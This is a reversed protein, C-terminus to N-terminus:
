LMNSCLSDNQTQIKAVSTCSCTHSSQIFLVGTLCRVAPFPSPSHRPPPSTPSTELCLHTTVRALRKMRRQTVMVWGHHTKRMRLVRDNFNTLVWKFCNLNLFFNKITFCYKAQNKLPYNHVTIPMYFSANHIIYELKFFFISLLNFLM